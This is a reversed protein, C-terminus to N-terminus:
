KGKIYKDVDKRGDCTYIWLIKDGNEVQYQGPSAEPFEGNVSFLWGSKGGCHREYLNGIGEVYTSKKSGKVSVQIENERGAQILVDAASDGENFVVTREELIIGDDPIVAEAEKKVKGAKKQEVATQCTVSVTCEGQKGTGGEKGCGAITVFVMAVALVLAIIRHHKM